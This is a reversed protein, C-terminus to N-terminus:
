CFSLPKFCCVNIIKYNQLDSTLFRNKPTLILTDASSHKKQLSLPLIWEKSKGAKPSWRYEKSRIGELWGVVGVEAETMVDRERVRRGGEKM